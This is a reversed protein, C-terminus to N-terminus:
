SRRAAPREMEKLQPAPRGPHVFGIPNAQHQQQAAIEDELAQLLSQLGISRGQLHLRRMATEVNGPSVQLRQLRSLPMDELAQLQAPNDKLVEALLGQLQQAELWDFAVKLDFRRMVATDLTQFRNSTAIFIGEFRELQVLMENVMSIEWSRLHSGSRSNLFTDAEDLLLIAGKAKAEAFMGAMNSETGGVYPDLLSSASKVLLPRDLEKALYAAFATKGTGPHGHLCLRAHGIRQIQRVVRKMGPRTNLWEPRYEPFKQTKGKLAEPRYWDEPFKKGEAKLRQELLTLIKKQNQIPKQEHMLAGLRKLQALHAPTVWNAKSLWERFSDTVPLPSLQELRQQQQAQKKPVPVELVLDFRRLYAPDLMDIRNSLWLTPSANSELQLNIWAKPPPNRHDRFADEMEDFLFLTDPKSQLMLQGLVLLNIRKAAPTMDGDSDVVPVAHLDCKLWSALSSALLTKGVGPRGYLLINVGKKRQQVAQQLYDYLFQLEPVYDFSKQTLVPTEVKPCLGKYADDIQQELTQEAPQHLVLVNNLLNTMSGADLCDELDTIHMTRDMLMFRYLLHNEKALSYLSGTPLFLLQELLDLGHRLHKICVQDTAQFLVPHRVKLWLLGLFSKEASSLQMRSALLEVAQMLPGEFAGKPTKQQKLWNKLLAVEQPHSGTESSLYRRRRSGFLKSDDDSEEPISIDFLPLLEEWNLNANLQHQREALVLLRAALMQAVLQEEKASKTSITTTPISTSQIQNWLM